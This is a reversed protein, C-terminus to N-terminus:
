GGNRMIAVGCHGLREPSTGLHAHALSSDGALYLSPAGPINEFHCPAPLHQCSDQKPCKQVDSQLTPILDLQHEFFPCKGVGIHSISTPFCAFFKRIEQTKMKM